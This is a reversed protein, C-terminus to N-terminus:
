HLKQIYQISYGNNFVDEMYKKSNHTNCYLFNNYYSWAGAGLSIQEGQPAKWTIETDHNIHNPLCFDPQAVQVYGNELLLQMSESFMQHEVEQSPMLDYLDEQRESLGMSYLSITSVGM